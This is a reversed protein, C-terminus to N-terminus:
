DKFVVVGIKVTATTKAQECRAFSNVMVVLDHYIAAESCRAVKGAATLLKVM